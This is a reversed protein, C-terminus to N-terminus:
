LGRFGQEIGAEARHKWKAAPRLGKRDSRSARCRWDIERKSIEEVVFLLLERLLLSILLFRRVAPPSQPVALRLDEIQSDNSKKGVFGPKQYDLVRVLKREEEGKSYLRQQSSLHM